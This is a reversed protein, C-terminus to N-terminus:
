SMVKELNKEVYEKTMPYMDDMDTINIFDGVILKMKGHHKHPIYFEGNEDVKVYTLDKGDFEILAQPPVQKRIYLGM